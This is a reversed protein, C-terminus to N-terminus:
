IIKAGALTLFCCRYSFSLDNLSKIISHNLSNTLDNFRRTML